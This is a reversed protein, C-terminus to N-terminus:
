VEHEEFKVIGWAEPVPYRSSYVDITSRLRQKRVMDWEDLWELFRKIPERDRTFDLEGSDLLLLVRRAFGVRQIGAHPKPQRGFSAPHKMWIVILADVRDRLKSSHWKAAEVLYNLLTAVQGRTLNSVEGSSGIIQSLLAETTGCADELVDVNLLNTGLLTVRWFVAEHKPFARCWALVDRVTVTSLNPQKAVFDNVFGASEDTRYKSLWILLSDWVVEREGGADLWAKYVFRAEADTQHVGLWEQIAAQVVAKDGGADLWANYVHSAEADTQHVGLWEQIAAQVV